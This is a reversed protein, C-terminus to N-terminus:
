NNITDIIAKYADREGQMLKVADATNRFTMDMNRNEGIQQALKTAVAPELAAAIKAIVDKPTGAPALLPIFSTVGFPYGLEKMSVLDPAVRLAGYSTAFLAVADGAAVIPAWSGGSYGVDVDGALVAQVAGSGGKVPVPIVDVGRKKGIFQMVLRDLSLFSAFKIARKESKAVAIMEDLTKFPKDKNAFVAGQFEGIMAVMDFNEMDYLTKKVLPELTISTSNTALLTYGDAKEKALRIAAVGGGAGSVNQVLVTQGLQKSMEETLARVASDTGGGPAYAVIITVPKDAPFSGAMATPAIGAALALALATGTALTRFNTIPLTTRM